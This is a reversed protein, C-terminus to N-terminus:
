VNPAIIATHSQIVAATHLLCIFSSVPNQLVEEFLCIVSLPQLSSHAAAFSPPPPAVTPDRCNSNWCRKHKSLARCQPAIGLFCTHFCRKSQRTFLLSQTMGRWDVPLVVMSAIQYGAFAAWNFVSFLYLTISELLPEVHLTNAHVTVTDKQRM